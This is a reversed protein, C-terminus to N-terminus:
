IPRCGAFLSPIGSGDLLVANVERNMQSNLPAWAAGDWKVIYAAPVNGATTFQGGAFVHDSADVALTWVTGNVGSGLASWSSGNWRAINSAAASGASTFTGAAFLNGSADLTLARVIAFGFNDQDM